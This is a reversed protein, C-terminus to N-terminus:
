ADLYSKEYVERFCEFFWDNEETRGISVRICHPLDFSGLRRVLVGKERLSEYIEEVVEPDKLDIMVFNAFSPVYEIGMEEFFSYFRPLEKIHHSLTKQLFEEDELAAGGAVQALLNPNFTLKVKHLTQIIDPQAIGYGLRIGALGYAKSFTRLTLVNEFGLTTSDPYDDSLHTSFEFYAEDVIVLRDKPVKKLFGLMNDHPIMTGTPNNPNCLYIIRVQDTIASLIANMNFTYGKAMPITLYEVNHMKCMARLSVFSAHSTLLAEGPLTFAKFVTYLIGDSGNGLIIRDKAVGLKGSLKEKLADGTPDPYLYLQDLAEVIAQKARPSVGLNNENSCLIATRQNVRGDFMDAAPKGPKYNAIEHIHSPIRVMLNKRCIYM